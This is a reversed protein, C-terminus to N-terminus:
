PEFKKIYDIILNDLLLNNARKQNRIKLKCEPCEDIM